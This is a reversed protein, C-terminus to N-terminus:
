EMPGNLLLDHQRAADTRKGAEQPAALRVGMNAFLARWLAQAAPADVRHDLACVALTGGGHARRVLAAGSPKELMEYLVVAAVKANEPRDNFLSWDVNSAELLVEGKEVFPGGLGAKLIRRDKELHAFYLDKLGLGALWPHECAPQVQTAWRGTLEVPSPLQANLAPLSATRDCLMVLATGGAALAAALRARAQELRAPALSQGDVVLLPQIGDALPVGWSALRARLASSAPGVFAVREVTPPPPLTKETEPKVRRDWPCPQPGGPALAAKMAHFLPLPKYLPLAPDWGPNLTAVFPPLREPQMGPKGEEFPRTFFVGDEETPLRTVDDYGFALHELGFWVVESPSFYALNPLAMRVVNDYLDIALAENRGLNSAYARGGNFVSLQVPTAYYTGGSEGVKLPKNLGKPLHATVDGHGFHRSWVPLAGGLDDDGDCTIWPRTPDLPLSRRGLARLKEYYAREDEKSMDNLRPIAFMENGFSWGMVCPHNRDRLVLGDYHAEYRSWFAPEEPNLRVSSGFVSTEDLVLLGMEDALDLYFRPHVQAHPRMANGGMEKIMRYWAWATRPSMVYAGFPHVFDGMLQIREGNLLLDPGRIALERWGFRTVHRDVVGGRASVSLALAYLNPAAPSWTKLAGGASQRLTVTARGGAPVTVEQAAVALAPELLRWAPGSPVDGGSARQWPCVEGAIRLAQPEASQNVLTVEAELFGEAVKPKVFCDSVRAPPLALLFVDQWIGILLDTMSGPPYPALFKAYRESKKNFLNQGRVGVLLENPEDWRVAETVDAEFPLFNDFHECVKRGNVWVQCEGSAAEFHLALRRGRWAEPARFSRRLWGMEAGDWEPPYSPYYVSDPWYRQEENFGKRRGCGWTNVNWHSPIKIPVPSWGDTRPPALEPPAGQNRRYGAPLPAPQFQWLGNLCLEQRLPQEPPKVVGELPAFELPCRVAALSAVAWAGASL